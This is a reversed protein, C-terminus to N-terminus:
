KRESAPPSLEYIGGLGKSGGFLVTGFVNGSPDVVTFYPGGGGKGNAFSHLATYEWLGDSSDFAFKLVTGHTGLGGEYITAYFNGAGDTILSVPFTGDLTYNFDHQVTETWGGSSNPSLEFLTGCGIPDLIHCTSNTGSGGLYTVGWLNGAGDSVLAEPMAGDPAGNFSYAVTETWSGTTAPSLEFIYGCGDPCATLNGGQTSLGYLNGSADLVLPEGYTGDTGGLFNYLTTKTWTGGSSPSLEFITGKGHAGGTTGGYLNGGSDMMTLFPTEGDISNAFSYLVTFSWGGAALPKLEFILGCGKKCGQGVTGGYDASGYLNGQSDSILDSPTYGGTGGTFTHISTETYHGGSTPTLKIIQGCSGKNCNTNAASVVISYLNGSPDRVLGAADYGYGVGVFNVVMSETYQAASVATFAFLLAALALIHLRTPNRMMIEEGYVSTL